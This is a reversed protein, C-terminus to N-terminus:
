RDVEVLGDRQTWRYTRSPVEGYDRMECGPPLECPTVFDVGGDRVDARLPAMTGISLELQVESGADADYHIIQVAGVGEGDSTLLVYGDGVASVRHHSGDGWLCGARPLTSAHTRPDVVRCQRRGGCGTNYQGVYVRGDPLPFALAENQIACNDYARDAADFTLWLPVEFPEPVPGGRLRLMPAGTTLTPELMEVRLEDPHAAEVRVHLVVGPHHGPRGSLTLTVLVDARAWVHRELLVREADSREVAAWRAIRDVEPAVGLRRTLEDAVRHGESVFRVATERDVDWESRELEAVDLREREFRYTWWTCGGECRRPLPSIWGHFRCRAGDDLADLCAPVSSLVDGRSTGPWPLRLMMGDDDAWSRPAVRARVPTASDSLESPPPPAIAVPDCAPTAVLILAMAVRACLEM